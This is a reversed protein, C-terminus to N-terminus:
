NSRRKVELKLETPMQAGHLHVTGAYVHLKKMMHRGLVTKPMMREVALKLVREPHTAMMRDYPVEVFGGPYLSHRRHVMEKNKKGTFHVKEANIVVVNDGNDIHPNYEAKNKGQLVLALRSALRGVILDTADVIFWRQSTTGPTVFTTSNNM